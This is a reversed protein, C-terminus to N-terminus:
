SHPSKCRHLPASTTPLRPFRRCFVTPKKCFTTASYPTLLNDLIVTQYRWFRICLRPVLSSPQSRLGATLIHELLRLILRQTRRLTASCGVGRFVGENSHACIQANKSDRRSSPRRVSDMAIHLSHNEERSIDRRRSAEFAIQQRDPCTNRGPRKTYPDATDHGFEPGVGRLLLAM